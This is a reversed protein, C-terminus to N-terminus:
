AEEIVVSVPGIRVPVGLPLGEAPEIPRDNVMVPMTTRCVLRGDRVHLVAQSELGDARIHATPGPGLLMERDLLIIKRIDAQPLRAESLALAASTSAANPRCFRMRCRPSLMIRDGDSLM